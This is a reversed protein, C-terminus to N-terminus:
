SRGCAAADAGRGGTSSGPISLQQLLAHSPFFSSLSPMTTRARAMALKNPSHIPINLVKYKKNKKNKSEYANSHKRVMIDIRTKVEIEPGRCMQVEPINWKGGKQVAEEKTSFTAVYVNPSICENPAPGLYLQKLTIM